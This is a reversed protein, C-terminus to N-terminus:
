IYTSSFPSYPSCHNNYIINYAIDLPVNKVDIIPYKWPLLGLSMFSILGFMLLQCIHISNLKTTYLLSIYQYLQRNGRYECLYICNHILILKIKCLNRLCVSGPSITYAAYIYQILIIYLSRIPFLDRKPQLLTIVVKTSPTYSYWIHIFLLSSPIHIIDCLIVKVVLFLIM